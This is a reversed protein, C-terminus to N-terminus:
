KEQRINIGKSFLASAKKINTSKRKEITKGTFFGGIFSIITLISSIIGLWKVVGEQQLIEIVGM